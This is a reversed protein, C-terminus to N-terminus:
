EASFGAAVHSGDCFPPKETAGCRCLAAKNGRFGVKGDVTKIVFPGSLFLPGNPQLKIKLVEKESHEESPPTHAPEMTGDDQFESYIHAGDCFPQLNTEGCRCLSVRTDRLLLEDGSYIEINGTMYLPGDLNLIVTNEDPVPEEPGGDLREFHLAGTPCRMIVEAVKDAPDADAVIWPRRTTDFVEPAGRLCEAVHTCRDVSFAIIIDKGKYKIIREKVHM